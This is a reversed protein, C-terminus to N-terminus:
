WVGAVGFLRGRTLGTDEGATRGSSRRGNMDKRRTQRRAKAGERDYEANGRRVVYPTGQCVVEDSRRRFAVGGRLKDRDM